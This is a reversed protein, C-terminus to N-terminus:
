GFRVACLSLDLGTNEEFVSQLMDCYIGDQEYTVVQKCPYTKIDGNKFITRSDTFRFFCVSYTDSGEDLRIVCRNPRINKNPLYQKLDCLSFKLYVSGDKNTGYFFNKSGTVRAFGLGSHAGLQALITEAIEQAHSKGVIPDNRNESM